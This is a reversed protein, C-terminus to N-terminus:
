DMMVQIYALKKNSEDIIDQYYKGSKVNSEAKSKQSM